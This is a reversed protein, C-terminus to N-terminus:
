TTSGTWRRWGALTALIIVFGSGISGGGTYGPRHQIVVAEPEEKLRVKFRELQDALNTTLDTSAQAFGEESDEQLEPASRVLTTHDKIVSAGPARFLLSRSEIDYVVAEMLTHTENKSAPVIYAGVITWYAFSWENEVRGQMQDHSILAIVDVGLLSRVQDLNEFSGGTRLYIDPIEEISAVFPLSAFQASVQRLLEQRQTGPLAEATHRFDRQASPVFAIGVRLPLRLTPTTPDVFPQEGGPYLFEVVSSSRHQTRSPLMCGTSLTILLVAILALAIIRPAYDRSPTTEM